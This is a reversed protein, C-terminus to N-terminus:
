GYAALMAWPCLMSDFSASVVTRTSKWSWRGSESGILHVATWGEARRDRCLYPPRARLARKNAYSAESADARDRTHFCPHAPACRLSQAAYHSRSAPFLASSPCDSLGSSTLPRASYSPRLSQQPPAALRTLKKACRTSCDQSAVSM